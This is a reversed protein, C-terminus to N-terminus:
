EAKRRTARADGAEHTARLVEVAPQVAPFSTEPRMLRLSNVWTYRSFLLFLARFWVYQSRHAVMAQHNLLANSNIVVVDQPPHRAQQVHTSSLDRSVATSITKIYHIFLSLGIDLMSGVYKRPAAVSELEYCPVAGGRTCFLAVGDYVAKHNPHGTVGYADFTIILDARHRGIQERVSNAIIGVPWTRDMGDHLEADNTVAVSSVGLIAAAKVLEDKRTGSAPGNIGESLCLISLSYNANILGRITPVFFMSEDDPHAIVLLARKMLGDVNDARSPWRTRPWLLLAVAACAVMVAPYLM